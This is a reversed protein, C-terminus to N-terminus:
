WLTSCLWCDLCHRCHSDVADEATTM